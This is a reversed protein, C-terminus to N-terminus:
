ILFQCSSNNKLECYVSSKYECVVSNISPGKRVKIKGFGDKREAIPCVENYWPSPIEGSERNAGTKGDSTRNLIEELPPLNFDREMIFAILM